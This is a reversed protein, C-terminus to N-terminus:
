FTRSNGALVRKTPSWKLAFDYFEGDQYALLLTVPVPALGQCAGRSENESGKVNAADDQVVKPM